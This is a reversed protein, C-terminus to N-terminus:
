RIIIGCRTEIFECESEIKIEPLLSGVHPSRIRENEALMRGTESTGARRMKVTLSGTGTFGNV